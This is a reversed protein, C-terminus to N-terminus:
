AKAHFGPGAGAVAVPEFAVEVYNALDADIGARTLFEAPEFEAARHAQEVATGAPGMDDASAWKVMTVVNFRGPGSDKELLVDGLFGAQRRLVTHTLRVQTWFEDRADDPVEFKDVRYVVPM